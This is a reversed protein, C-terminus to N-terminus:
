EDKEGQNLTELSTKISYINEKIQNLEEVESNISEMCNKSHESTKVISNQINGTFNQINSVTKKSQESLRRIEGAIVTFSKGQEGARAAEISANFSIMQTEDALSSVSKVISNIEKLLVNINQIESILEQQSGNLHNSTEYFSVLASEIDSIFPTIEDYSSSFIQSSSYNEALKEIINELLKASSKIRNETVVPIRKVATMYTDLAIKMNEAIKLFKKEDPAKTLVQGAIICGLYENNIFIPVIFNTLGNYCTYITTKEPPEFEGNLSNSMSNLDCNQCRGDEESSKKIYKSCFDTYNSHNTIPVQGELTVAAMGTADSFSDQLQQLYNLDIFDTLKNNSM